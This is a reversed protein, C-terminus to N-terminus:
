KGITKILPMKVNMEMANEKATFNVNFEVINSQQGKADRVYVKITHTGVTATPLTAIYFSSSGTTGTIGISSALFNNDWRMPGYYEETYITTIDGESDSWSFNGNLNQGRKVNPSDLSVSIQPVGAAGGGSGSGGSSGSSSGGSSCGFLFVLLLSALILKKM